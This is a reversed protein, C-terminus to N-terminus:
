NVGGVRPVGTRELIKGLSQAALTQPYDGWCLEMKAGVGRQTINTAMMAAGYALAWNGVSAWGDALHTWAERSQPHESVAKLLMELIIDPSAKKINLVQAMALYAYSRRSKIIEETQGYTMKLYTNYDDIAKDYKELTIYDAGRQIYSDPFNPNEKIFDDLQKVYNTSKKRHHYVVVKETTARKVSRDSDPVCREHIPNEWKWGHRAHIKSRFSSSKDKKEIYLYDILEVDQDFQSEVEERWGDGMTEDLDISVCVDVDKPVNKLAINRAIDFRWPKIEAQFVLAGGDELLKITKDTSGTDTVVVVDADKCSALFRQVNKEENKSIAYIAIKM